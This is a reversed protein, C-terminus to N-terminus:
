MIFCYFYESDQIIIYQGSWRLLGHFDLWVKISVNSLFSSFSLHTKYVSVSSNYLLKKAQLFMKKIHGDQDLTRFMEVWLTCTSCMSSCM